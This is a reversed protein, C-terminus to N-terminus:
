DLSKVTISEFWVASDAITLVGVRGSGSFTRDTADFLERGDFIITFRERKAMVGLTHWAHGSVRADVGAIMERKGAVVRYFRVNNELASARVVYYDEASALRVVVGAAQDVDGSVPIFRTSAYVNRASFPRHIALSLRDDAAQSGSQALAQDSGSRIISWEGPTGGGTAVFEFDGLGRSADFTIAATRGPLVGLVGIALCFAALAMYRLTRAKTLQGRRDAGASPGPRNVTGTQRQFISTGSSM